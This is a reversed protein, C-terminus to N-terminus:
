FTANFGFSYMKPTPYSGTIMQPDIGEKNKRWIIAMNQGYVFASLRTTKSKLLNSFDYSLRIDRLRIHDGKLIKIESYQYFWDRYSNAPYVLSPVSTWQEDGPKQWRNAYDSYGSIKLQDAYNISTTPKRFVSNFFYTINVSLGFNKFSFDNRFSGFSTPLFSGAYVLDSADMRNYIANYDETNQGDIIGIPNGNEPNLGAWKYAFISKLPKGVIGGMDSISTKIPDYRVIKDKVYSYLISSNWKIANDIIKFNFTIDLGETKTKGTNAYYKTFGTQPALNTEQILDIGNKIYYEINGSVIDNKLRFDLGFNLNKVKEWRLDSNPATLNNVALLGTPMPFYRGTLLGTGNQYTNGNYGFSTRLNLFTVTESKYFSEKSINWGGGISWLPSFKNNTNVGFLNAGDTRASITFTYKKKYNYSGNAYYSLYRNIFGNIASGPGPLMSTGSPSTPYSTNYNLNMNSTGFQDDYGILALSNGDSKLERAEYGALGYIGHNGIQKEFNLQMRFNMSKWDTNTLNLNAGDPYNYTFLKSTNDFVSFKNYLDRVYYTESSRYRRQTIKQQESQYHVSATLEPLIKYSASIRAIISNIKTTNDSLRIEDLPRYRWDRYGKQGAEQLYAESLRNLVDLPNGNEDALMTYPFITGSYKSNALSYSKFENNLATKSQTYNLGATIELGKLPTYTSVSNITLRNFGNRILEDRNKDYGAGLRYTMNGTGGRLSLAYQQKIARQYVYKEMDSRVDHNRLVDLKSQGEEATIAGTKVQNMIQVAPSVVPRTSKNSIDSNFYGKDFLYQEVEIFSKSDVFRKDYYLDPMDSISWNSSVDIKMKENLKGKKTTIVIVGNGSRAGWISAASADKLITVNEIDNPNISSLDGEFPFNDVVILPSTSSLFTSEGRITIPSRRLNPNTQIRNGVLDNSQFALGPVISNLRDLINTSVSRNLLKNDVQVFSGVAREKPISQYGTNIVDATEMVINSPTLRIEGINGRVEIEQPEYGLMKITLHDGDQVAIEFLGSGSSSTGTGGKSSTVTAGAIPNGAQDLVLGSKKAPQEGKTKNMDPESRQRIIINKGKIEYDLNDPQNKFIERMAQDISVGKLNVTVPRTKALTLSPAMISYDTQARLKKIVLELSENKATLSIDQARAINSAAFLSVCLTLVRLSHAYSPLKQKSEQLNFFRGGMSHFLGNM